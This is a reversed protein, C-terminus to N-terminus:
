RRQEEHGMAVLVTWELIVGLMEGTADCTMGNIVLELKTAEEPHSEAKHFAGGM